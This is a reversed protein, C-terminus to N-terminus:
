TNSLKNIKSIVRYLNQLFEICSTLELNTKPLWCLLYQIVYTKFQIIRVDITSMWAVWSSNVSAMLGPRNAIWTSTKWDGRSACIFNQFLEFSRFLHNIYNWRIFPSYDFHIAWWQIKQPYLFQKFFNLTITFINRAAAEFNYRRFFSETTWQRRTPRWKINIVKLVKPLPSVAIVYTVSQFHGRVLRFGLFVLM